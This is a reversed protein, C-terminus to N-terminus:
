KDMDGRTEDTGPRRTDNGQIRRLLDINRIISKDLNNMNRQQRDTIEFAHDIHQGETLHRAQKSTVAMVIRYRLWEMMAITHVIRLQQYNSPQWSEELQICHQAYEKPSEKYAKTSIVMSKRWAKWTDSGVLSLIPELMTIEFGKKSMDDKM